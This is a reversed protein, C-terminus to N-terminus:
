SGLMDMDIEEMLPKAFNAVLLAIDFLTDSHNVIKKLMEGKTIPWALRDKWRRDYNRKLFMYDFRNQKLCKDCASSVLEAAILGYVIGGGSFPKIQCAADGVLLVRDAVTDEMLGYRILGGVDPKTTKGVRKELFKNFYHSPNKNAALGVRARGKSLPVVWAFFDPCVERGFWLEAGAFSGEVTAQIGTLVNKPQELKAQLAVKSNAGDAGILLKTEFVGKSTRVKLCDETREFGEFRTNLKIEAGAKKARAALHRDFASRDIVHVPRKSKLQLSNNRSHFEARRVENLFINKPLDPVLQKIRWSVFGACKLPRGIQSHEELVLTKHGKKSILEATRCGIPGGGVVIADWM